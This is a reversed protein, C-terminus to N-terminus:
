RGGHYSGLQGILPKAGSTSGTGSRYLVHGSQGQGQSQCRGQGKGWTGFKPAGGDGQQWRQLEADIVLQRRTAVAGDLVRSPLPTQMMDAYRLAYPVVFCHANMDLISMMWPEKSGAGPAHRARAQRIREHGAGLTPARQAGTADTPTGRARFAYDAARGMHVPVDALRPTAFISFISVGKGDRVRQQTWGLGRTGYVPLRPGQPVSLHQQAFFTRREEASLTDLQEAERARWATCDSRSPPVYRGSRLYMMDRARYEVMTRDLRRGRCRAMHYDVEGRDHSRHPQGQRTVVALAHRQLALAEGVSTEEM